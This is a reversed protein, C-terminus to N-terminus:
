YGCYGAAFDAFEEWLPTMTPRTFLTFHDADEADGAHVGVHRLPLAGPLRHLLVEADRPGCLRDGAGVAGWVPMRIRALGALYDVGDRGLWRGSHVWSAMQEVYRRPEDDSGLRLRRIPAYGLPRSALAYLTMLARRRWPGRPGSLWVSTAWLGLRGPSPVVGTGIAALAVLGGLSHGALTLMGPAIDAERCVADMAAPLDHHVYDDFSWQHGRRADPPRSLGHGRWDLLFTEIGRRALHAAFGGAGARLYSSNAMMAHTCLCVGRRAGQAPFRRLALDVGDATRARLELM